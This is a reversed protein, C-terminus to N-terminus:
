KKVNSFDKRFSAYAQQEGRVPPRKICHYAVDNDPSGALPVVFPKLMGQVGGALMEFMQLWCKDTVIM